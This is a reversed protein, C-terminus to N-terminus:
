RRRARVLKVAYRRTASGAAGASAGVTLLARAQVSGRGALARRAAGGLHLRVVGTRGAAVVLSAFALRPARRVRAAAAPMAGRSAYVGLAAYCSGSTSGVCRVRATANGRADVSITRSLLLATAAPGPPSPIPTSLVVSATANDNAANIDPQAGAVSAGATLTQPASAVVGVTVSEQAGPALAPLSCQAATGARGTVAQCGAPLPAFAAGAPRPLSLVIASMQERGANRVTAKLPVISGTLGAPPAQLSLALDGAAEVAGLDCGAGQPRPLGREDEPGPGPILAAGACTLGGADLAPSGPLPVQVPGEAGGAALPALLPDVALPATGSTACPGGFIINAGATNLVGKPVLDCQSGSGNSALISGELSVPGEAYMAGGGEPSQAVNGTVTSFALSATGRVELAGGVSQSLNEAFTSDYISAETKTNIAMGGGGSFGGKNLVFSTRAVKATPGGAYVGGGLEAFNGEILSDVITLESTAAVGGGVVAVTQQANELVDVQALVLPSEAFIGVGDTSASGKAVALGQLTVRAVGAPVHIVRTAGGGSITTAGAGAGEIRVPCVLSGCAKEKSGVVLPGKASNLTYVGPPVNIVIETVLGGASITNAASEVAARLPCQEGFTGEFSCYEGHDSLGRDEVTTVQIVDAIAAAGAPLAGGLALAVLCACLLRLVPLRRIRFAGRDGTAFIAGRAGAM